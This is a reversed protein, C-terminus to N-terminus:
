AGAALAVLEEFQEISVVGTLRQIVRNDSGVVVWSPVSPISLAEDISGSRDDIVVPPTWGEREFWAAPPYNEGAANVGKMGWSDLVQETSLGGDTDHNGIVHLTTEHAKNLRDVIKQNSEEAFAFDGMQILADPKTKTMEDLFSDLRESGDPILDVHLDGIVGLRIPRSLVNLASLSVAPLSCGASGIALTKSFNRRNM